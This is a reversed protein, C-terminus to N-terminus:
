ILSNYYIIATNIVVRGFQCESLWRMVRTGDSDGRAAGERNLRRDGKLSIGTLVVSFSDNM